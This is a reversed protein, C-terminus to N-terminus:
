QGLLIVDSDTLAYEALNPEIEHFQVMTTLNQIYILFEKPIVRRLLAKKWSLRLM